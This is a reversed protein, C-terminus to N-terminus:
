LYNSIPIIIYKRAPDFHLLWYVLDSPEPLIAIKLNTMTGLIVRSECLDLNFMEGCFTLNGLVHDGVVDYYLILSLVYFDFGIDEHTVRIWFNQISPASCKNSIAKFIINNCSAPTGHHPSLLCCTTPL